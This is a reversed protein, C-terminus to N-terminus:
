SPLRTVHFAYRSGDKQNGQRKAPNERRQPTGPAVNASGYIRSAVPHPAARGASPSTIEFDMM